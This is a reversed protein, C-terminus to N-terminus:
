LPHVVGNLVALQLVVSVDRPCANELGRTSMAEECCLLDANHPAQARRFAAVIDDYGLVTTLTKHDTAAEDAYVTVTVKRRFPDPQIGALWPFALVQTLMMTVEVDKVTRTTDIQMHQHRAAGQAVPPATRELVGQLIREAEQTYERAQAQEAAQKARQAPLFLMEARQLCSRAKSALKSAEALSDIIQYRM